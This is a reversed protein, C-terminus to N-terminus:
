DGVSEFLASRVKGPLYGHVNYIEFMKYNMVKIYAHISDDLTEYVSAYQARRERLDSLATEKDLNRYDYTNRMTSIKATLKM